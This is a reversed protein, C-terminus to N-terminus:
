LKAQRIIGLSALVARATSLHLDPIATATSKALTSQALVAAVQEILASPDSIDLVIANKCAVYEMVSMRRAKCKPTKPM